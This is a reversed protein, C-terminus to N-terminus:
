NIGVRATILWLDEIRPYILLTVGEVVVKEATTVNYLEPPNHNVINTQPVSWSLVFVVGMSAM